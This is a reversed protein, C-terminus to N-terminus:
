LSVLYEWIQSSASNPCITNASLGVLRPKELAVRGLFCCPSVPIVQLVVAYNGSSLYRAWRSEMFILPLPHGLVLSITGLLHPFNPAWVPLVTPQPQSHKTARSLAPVVVDVAEGYASARCCQEGPMPNPSGLIPSICPICMAMRWAWVCLTVVGAHAM